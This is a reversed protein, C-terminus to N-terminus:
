ALFGKRGTKPSNMPSNASGIAWSHGTPKRLMYFRGDSNLMFNKFVVPGITLEVQKQQVLDNIKTDM